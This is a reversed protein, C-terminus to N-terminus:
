PILPKKCTLLSEAHFYNKDMNSQIKNIIDLLAHEVSHKERFGYQSPILINHKDIFTKLRNYMLKEFIRNINSLLSIPRYNTPNDEEGSKYVPIIKAYKLKTPYIGTEISWNMLKALPGSIISKACKMIRLPFSYLGSAKNNPILNIETEVQAPTVPDFYFSGSYTPERLVERNRREERPRAVQLM